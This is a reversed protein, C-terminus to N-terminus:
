ALGSARIFPNAIPSEPNKQSAKYHRQAIIGALGAQAVGRLHPQNHLIGFVSGKGIQHM